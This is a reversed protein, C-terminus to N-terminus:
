LNPLDDKITNWFLPDYLKAAGMVAADEMLKSIQFDITLGSKHIKNKIIPLFLASAKSVNGGLIILQPEYKELYPIMFEAMNLGFETFVKRSNEDNTNAIDKVGKVKIKSIEHYRKICWRTSFYDDAIGDKYAKDWLCGGKPVNNSHIQPIGNKIYASGFGTGLTIAILKSYNQAKGISSAGVAFATADNLFRFEINSCNIHKALENPISINFLSEYKDNREFMAIGTKYHFPGPMAFGIKVRGTILSSKLTQNIAQSWNKFIIDKPAKNDIKISYTTEPIIKLNKIDVASSTIHSGGVDIGIVLQNDM